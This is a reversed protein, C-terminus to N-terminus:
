LCILRQLFLFNETESTSFGRQGNMGNESYTMTGTQYYCLRSKHDQLQVSSNILRHMGGYGIRGWREVLIDGGKLQATGLLGAWLHSVRCNQPFLQLLGWQKVHFSHVQKEAKVTFHSMIALFTESLEVVTTNDLLGTDDWFTNDLLLSVLVNCGASACFCILLLCSTVVKDLFVLMCVCAVRFIACGVLAESATNILHIFLAYLYIM